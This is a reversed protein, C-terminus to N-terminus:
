AGEEPGVAVRIARVRSKILGNGEAVGPSARAARQNPRYRHLDPATPMNRPFKEHIVLMWQPVAAPRIHSGVPYHRM